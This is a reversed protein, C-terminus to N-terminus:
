RSSTGSTPWPQFANQVRALTPVLAPYHRVLVDSLTTNEIWDIGIWTYLAPGYDTTFFRDSKLRRSAMLVFIRFATDSFGFGPPLPEAYLGIQLDVSDIDGHYVDRIERAWIPNDTLEDFTRARPLHMLDRFENYRPTGRERSRLIDTAALDVVHGKDDTFTQLHRPYNHLTIAGPHSTGFTYFLDPLPVAEVVRRSARLAVDPFALEQITSDDRASRLRYEDPLLPHMRYVAVFEETISYPAAHHNTDSGPIGSILDEHSIRGFAHFLREQELGWWNGRLAVVTTPNALIATTWEVTHIKAMLAANILRAHEFLEDDSWSPYERKLRNCIANHEHAFTTHLLSLGVWYNGNVGTLDVGHEPDLPLLGDPQIALKGDQFSRLRAQRHGDSGYLQSGDWWHTAFNLFSAPASGSRDPRTPDPRTRLITLPRQGTWDTDPVDILWPDQKTNPGHSLWDHVMFQLWAAALLNLSTAPQFTQRTLLAHSVTRPNPTLVRPQPEPVTVRLPVNRGFRTHVAGMTPSALDNFTGDATRAALYRTDEAVPPPQPITPLLGTDYLNRARYVVRAALLVPIALPTPLRWWHITWDVMQALLTYLRTLLGLHRAAAYTNPPQGGLGGADLDPRAPNPQGSRASGAGRGAYVALATNLASITTILVGSGRPLRGSRAALAAAITDSGHILVAQGLVDARREGTSRLLDAGLFLTRIGFMRLVYLIAPTTNPNVGLRRALLGPVFLALAGNTLRIAALLWRALAHSWDEHSDM